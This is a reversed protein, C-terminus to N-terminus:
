MLRGVIYLRTIAGFQFSWCTELRFNHYSNLKLHTFHTFKPTFACFPNQLVVSRVSRVTWVHNFIFRTMHWSEKECRHWRRFEQHFISRSKVTHYIICDAFKRHLVSGWLIEPASIDYRSLRFYDQRGYIKQPYIKSPYLVFIKWLCNCDSWDLLSLKCPFISLQLPRSLCFITQYQM